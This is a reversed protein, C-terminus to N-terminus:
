YQEAVEVACDAGGSAFHRTIISLFNDYTHNHETHIAIILSISVTRSESEMSRGVSASRVLAPLVLVKNWSGGVVISYM